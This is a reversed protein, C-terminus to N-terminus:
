LLLRCYDTRSRVQDQAKLLSGDNPVSGRVSVTFEVGGSEAGSATFRLHPLQAFPCTLLPRSICSHLHTITDGLRLNSPVHM